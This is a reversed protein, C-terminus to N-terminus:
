NLQAIDEGEIFHIFYDTKETLLSTLNDIHVGLYVHPLIIVLYIQVTFEVAKFRSQLLKENGCLM